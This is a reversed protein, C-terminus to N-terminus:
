RRSRTLGVREKLARPVGYAGDLRVVVAPLVILTTVLAFMVDIVVVKGFDQLLPFNSVMLTGFGAIVTVVSATIAPGIRSVATLMADRPELGNHKEEVYREMLLITFETGIAIILSGLVATLPNLDLGIAYMFASSWGVVIVIPVLPVLARGLSRYVLLLGGAVALLAIITALNRNATLATVTRAMLVTTGAPAVTVDPPPQIEAAMEDILKGMDTVSLLPIGFSVVALRGDDSVLGSRVREPLGVVIQQTESASPIQQDTTDAAVASALSDDSLLEPHRAREQAQMSQMWRLTDPNTLNDGEVLFSVSTTKAVVERVQNLDILEQMSTPIMREVDTQVPIRNDLVFGAASFVVAVGIVPVPNDIARRALGKLFASRRSEKWGNPGNKGGGVAPRRKDRQYLVSNLLFLAMAFLITVGLSLMVGFGRIMPVKSVLLALFGLVTAFVAIGVAPGIHTIADIVARAASDGRLMEEEYRNHLQIAYDVGLGILIPLGAMSALTLPMSLYGMLGFTCLVGVLVIPLSLLRWRVPFILMLAVVMLVVAVGLTIGMSMKMKDMVARMLLPSGAITVDSANSFETSRVLDRVSVAAANEEDTTLGGELTVVILVHGSDPIVRQLQPFVAGGSDFVVSRAFQPDLSLSAISGSQTGEAIAKEASSQIFTLPSVVSRIRSDKGLEDQLSQFAALDSQSLLASPDGALLVLIQQGGFENTMQLYNQYVESNKSILMDQSTRMQIRLAGFVGAVAVLAAALAVWASHREIFQGLSRSLRKM